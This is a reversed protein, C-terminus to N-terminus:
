FYSFPLLMGSLELNVKKTVFGVEKEYIFRKLCLIPVLSFVASSIFNSRANFVFPKFKQKKISLNIM